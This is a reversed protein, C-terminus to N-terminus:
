KDMRSVIWNSTVSEAKAYEGYDLESLDSMTEDISLISALSVVRADEEDIIGGVESTITKNIIDIVNSRYM